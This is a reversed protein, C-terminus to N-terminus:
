RVSVEVEKAATTMAEVKPLYHRAYVEVHLMLGSLVCLGAQLLLYQWPLLECVYVAGM